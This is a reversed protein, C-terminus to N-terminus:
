SPFFLVISNFLKTEGFFRLLMISLKFDMLYPPPPHIKLFFIPSFPTYRPCTYSTRNRARRYRNRATRADAAMFFCHPRHRRVLGSSFKFSAPFRHISFKKRENTREEFKQRPCPVSDKSEPLFFFNMLTRQSIHHKIYTVSYFLLIKKNCNNKQSQKNISRFIEEKRYCFRRVLFVHARM